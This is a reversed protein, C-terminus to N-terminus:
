RNRTSIFGAFGKSRVEAHNKVGQEINSVQDVAFPKEKLQALADGARPSESYGLGNIAAKSLQLYLAYGHYSGYRWRIGEWNKPDALSVLQSVAEDSQITGMVSPTVLLAQFTDTGVEGEYQDWLFQRLPEVCAPTGIFAITTVIGSRSELFANDRLLRVLIPLAKAGLAHARDYPVGHQFGTQIFEVISAENVSDPTATADGLANGTCTMALTIASVGTVVGILLRRLNVPHLHILGTM